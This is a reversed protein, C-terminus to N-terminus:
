SNKKIYGVIKKATIIEGNIERTIEVFETIDQRMEETVKSPRGRKQPYLGTRGHDDWQKRWNRITSPKVGLLEAISKQSEGKMLLRIANLKKSMELNTEVRYWNEVTELDAWITSPKKPTKM